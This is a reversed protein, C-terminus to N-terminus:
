AEETRAEIASVTPPTFGAGFQRDKDIVPAQPLPEAGTKKQEEDKGRAEVERVNKMKFILGNKVINSDSHSKVWADFFQEDVNETVGVRMVPHSVLAVGPNQQALRMTKQNAGALIVRKYEPLRVPAGFGSKDITYGSELILGSALRCGITVTTM